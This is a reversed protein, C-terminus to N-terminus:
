GNSYEMASTTGHSLCVIISLAEGDFRVPEGDVEGLAGGLMVGLELGVAEGDSDARSEGGCDGLACGVVKGELEGLAGDGAGLLLGGCPGVVVGDAEGDM